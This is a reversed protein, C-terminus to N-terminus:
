IHRCVVGARSFCEAKLHQVLDANELLQRRAGQKGQASFNFEPYKESEYSVWSGALKLVDLMIATNYLDGIDDAGDEYFFDFSGRIGDHTGLKGKSIEWPVERGLKEKTTEDYYSKGKHIFLEIAKGHKLAWAASGPKYTDREMTPRGHVKVADKSRVQNILLLATENRDGRQGGRNLLMSLKPMFKSMLMAENRQQPFETFSDVAEKAETQLFGISNVVVVQCVNSEVLAAIADFGHEATCGHIVSIEGVETALDEREAKTLGPLGDKKRIDDLEQIEEQSFSIKLGCKERMFRKDPKFETFYAAMRFDKGYIRQVEACTKWTIYDKGAGDPGVIVCPAGAPFGGALKIDLGIIGTPRRLLYSSNDDRAFRIVKGDNNKNISDMVQSLTPKGDKAIKDAKAKGAAKKEEMREQIKKKAKKKKAAM